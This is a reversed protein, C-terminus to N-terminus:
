TGPYIVYENCASCIEPVLKGANLLELIGGVMELLSVSALRVIIKRKCGLNPIFPKSSGLFVGEARKECTMM